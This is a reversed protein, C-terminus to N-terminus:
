TLGAAGWHVSQMGPAPSAKVKVSVRFAGLTTPTRARSSAQFAEAPVSTETSCSETAGMGALMVSTVVVRSESVMVQSALGSVSTTM